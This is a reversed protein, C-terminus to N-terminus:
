AIHNNSTEYEGEYSRPRAWLSLSFDESLMALFGCPAHIEQM